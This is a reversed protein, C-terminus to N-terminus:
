AEYEGRLNYLWKNSDVGKWTNKAKDILTNLYEPDYKTDYDILEVLKLSTTDIEGTEVKQKGKARVGFEKYLLNKEQGELFDKGTDIIISGHDLTDLHINSKNKGGANTITGYFYLETDVLINQSIFFKTKPNITLETTKNVSTSIKFEYDKRQSLNQINEIARATKLELFDISNSANIQNLIASFGIIYQMPTRFVHRVSGEQIDYSILPRNKKNNPFLMDEVNQLIEKIQKIDYNDPKLDNNGSSSVVSIDIDGRQEM